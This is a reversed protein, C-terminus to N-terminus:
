AQARCVRAQRGLAAPRQHGDTLGPPLWPYVWSSGRQGAATERSHSAQITVISVRHGVLRSCEGDPGRPQQKGAAPSSLTKGALDADQYFIGGQVQGRGGRGDTHPHRTPPHPHRIYGYMQRRLLKSSM